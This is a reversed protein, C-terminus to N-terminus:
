KSTVKYRCPYVSVYSVKSNGNQSLLTTGPIDSKRILSEGSFEKTFTQPIYRPSPPRPSHLEGICGVEGETRFCHSITTKLGRFVLSCINFGILSVTNQSIKLSNLM